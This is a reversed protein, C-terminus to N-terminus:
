RSVVEKGDTITTRKTERLKWKFWKIFTHRSSEKTLSKRNLLFGQPGRGSETM